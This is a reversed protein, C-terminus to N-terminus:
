NKMFRNFIVMSNALKSAGPTNVHVQFNMLYKHLLNLPNNLWYLYIPFFLKIQFISKPIRRVHLWHRWVCAKPWRKAVLKFKGTLEIYRSCSSWDNSKHCFHLLSSPFQRGIAIFTTFLKIIHCANTKIFRAIQNAVSSAPNERIAWPCYAIKIARRCSGLKLRCFTDLLREFSYLVFFFLGLSFFLLV